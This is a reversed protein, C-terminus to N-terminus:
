TEEGMEEEEGESERMGEQGKLITTRTRNRRRAVEIRGQMGGRERTRGERIVVEGEIREEKEDRRRDNEEKGQEM